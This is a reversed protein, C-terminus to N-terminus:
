NLPEGDGVKTPAPTYTEQHSVLAYPPHRPKLLRHLVYRPPSVSRPPASCGKIRLNGFPSVGRPLVALAHKARLKYLLFTTLNTFHLCRTRVKIFKIVKHVKYSARPARPMGQSTFCKLVLLLLFWVKHPACPFEFCSARFRFCNPSIRKTDNGQFPSDLNHLIARSERRRPFSLVSVYGYNTLRTLGLLIL